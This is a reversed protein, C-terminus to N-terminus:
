KNKLINKLKYLPLINRNFYVDVDQVGDLWNILQKKESLNNGKWAISPMYIIKINNIM